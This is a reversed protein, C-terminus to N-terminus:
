DEKKKNYQAQNEFYYGLQFSGQEPLNLRAPFSEGLILSFEGLKKELYVAAKGNDRRLVRLHKQALNGLVPFILAPTASASNFYKDKITTTINPNAKKQIQEYVSFMRGLTYAINTSQENLEMQLVEKPCGPNPRRSYYAKLIAARGRTIDREARIRLEAGNLLTAPYPTGSLIAQLVNGTMQHSAEKNKSKQNVTENLLQWLSLNERNDYAPRIIAIDQYHQNLNEMFSGFSDQLFFRVSLRSANPSLGLFYFHEDPNLTAANWECAEGKALKSLAASLDADSIGHVDGYLADMGFDQYAEEGHEAWCVVTTDGIVKCHERDALLMNLATTYAFAAYESVPANGGQTHGYSDYAPANFSVLSAGSSQAGNVGKISPHTRAISGMNGTVLCQGKRSNEDGSSYYEQWAEAIESDSSVPELDYCFILNGGGTIEKWYPMLIKNEAAKGPNWQDFFSLIAEAAPSTCNSLLKQHLERSAEFCNLTREPKGKADAGLLYTSTDCIFNAAIGSSRKVRAPAKFLQNNIVKEKKGSKVTRHYPLIDVLEGKENLELGFSIKCANDWGPQSIRGQKLLSEYYSTLAQLIM